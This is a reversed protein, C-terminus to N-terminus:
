FDCDIRSARLGARVPGGPPEPDAEFRGTGVLDNRDIGLAVNWESREGDWFRIRLSGDEVWWRNVVYRAEWPPPESGNATRGSPHTAPTVQRERTGFVVEDRLRISDPSEGSSPPSGADVSWRLAWCGVVLAATAPQGLSAPRLDSAREAGPRPGCALLAALAALGVPAAARHRM